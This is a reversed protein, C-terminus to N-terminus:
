RGTLEWVPKGLFTSLETADKRMHELKGHDIVNQRSGDKLVLNLEYSYYSSKESRIFESLIQLAYIDSLRIAEKPNDKGYMQPVKWGKWFYGISKDFVIPRLYRYGMFLGAATFTLGFGVLVLTDLSYLPPLNGLYIVLPIGIGAVVFIGSFFLSSFTAKFLLRNFQEKHLKHTKINTGGGRLPSWDIQEALEDEFHSVDPTPRSRNLKIVGSKLKNFM